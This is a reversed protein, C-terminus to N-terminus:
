IKHRSEQRTHIKDLNANADDKNRSKKRDSEDITGNNRIM